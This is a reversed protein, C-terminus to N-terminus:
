DNTVITIGLNAQGCALLFPAPLDLDLQDQDIWSGVFVDLKLGRTRCSTWADPSRSQLWAAASLLRQEIAAAFSGSPEAMAAYTAREEDVFYILSAQGPELGPETRFGDEATLSMLTAFDGGVTVGPAWARLSVQIWEAAV